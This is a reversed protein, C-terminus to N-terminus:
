CTNVIALRMSPSGSDHGNVSADAFEAAPVPGEFCFETFSKSMRTRCVAGNSLDLASLQVELLLYLHELRPRTGRGSGGM